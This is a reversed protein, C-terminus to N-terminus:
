ARHCLLSDRLYAVNASLRLPYLCASRASVVAYSSASTRAVGGGPILTFRTSSLLTWLQFMMISPGASEGYATPWYRKSDCYAKSVMNSKCPPLNWSRRTRGGSYGKLGGLILKLVRM